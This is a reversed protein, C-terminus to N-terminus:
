STKTTQLKEFGNRSARMRENDKNWRVVVQDAFRLDIYDLDNPGRHYVIEKWFGDLKVLKM